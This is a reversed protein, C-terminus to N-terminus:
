CVTYWSDGLPDIYGLTTLIGDVIAWAFIIIIVGILSYVIMMKAQRVLDAKGLAFVYVFGAFVISLTAAFAAFKILFTISLQGMLIMSCLSCEDCENWATDPDDYNRGCPLFGGKEEISGCTDIATAPANQSLAAFLAAIATPPPALAAEGAGLGLLKTLAGTPDFYEYIDNGEVNNDVSSSSGMDVSTTGTSNSTEKGASDVTSSTLYGTSDVTTTTTNGESDTTTLILSGNEDTSATGTSTAIVKGSSDTTTSTMNGAATTTTTTTNGSSDTTTTTVNGNADTTTTGTGTSTVKGSADTTTTTINGNADTTTTTTNGEDDATTTTTTGSADTTTTSGPSYTSGGGGKSGGCYQLGRSMGGRIDESKAAATGMGTNYAWFGISTAGNDCMFKVEKEVAAGTTNYSEAIGIIPTVSPNLGDIKLGAIANTFNTLPQSNVTPYLYIGVMDCGTPSFNLTAAFTSYSQASHAYSTNASLTCISRHGPAYTHVAATMDQFLKKAAGGNSHWDDSLNFGVINSLNGQVLSSQLYANWKTMVAAETMAGFQCQLNSDGSLAYLYCRSLQDGYDSIIKLGAGTLNSWGSGQTSEYNLGSNLGVAVASATDSGISYAFALDLGSTVKNVATTTTSGPTSTGGTATTGTGASSGTGTSAGTGGTGSAPCGSYSITAAGSSLDVVSGGKCDHINNNCIFVTSAGQIEIGAYGGAGEDRAIDNGYIYINKTGDPRIGSNCYIRIYNDYVWVDSSGIAYVVDHGPQRVTNNHFKVNSSASFKLIDNWNHHLYMNDIEIASSSKFYIMTYFYKGCATATGNSSTNNDRNGDVEFGTIRVNSVSLGEIMNKDKPWNANGVLVIKAGTDGELVTNSRLAITDNIVYQGANLHVTGGSALAANIQVQNDNGTTASLTGGAQAQSPNACFFGSVLLLVLLFYLKLSRM